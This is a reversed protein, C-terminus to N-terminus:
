KGDKSVQKTNKEIRSLTNLIAELANVIQEDRRRENDTRAM